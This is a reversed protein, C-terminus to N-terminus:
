FVYRIGIEANEFNNTGIWTELDTSLNKRFALAMTKEILSFSIELKQPFMTYFSYTSGLVLGSFAQNSIHIPELRGSFYYEMQERRASIRASPKWYELGVSSLSLGEFAKVEASWTWPAANSAEQDLSPVSGVVKPATAREVKAAFSKTQDRTKLWAILGQTTIQSKVKNAMEMRLAIESSSSYGISNYFSDKQLAFVESRIRYDDLRLRYSVQMSQVFSENQFSNRMQSLLDSSDAEPATVMLLASWNGDLARPNFDYNLSSSFKATEEKSEEQKAGFSMESLYIKDGDVHLILDESWALPTWLSLFLAIFGYSKMCGDNAIQPGSDPVPYFLLYNINNRIKFM